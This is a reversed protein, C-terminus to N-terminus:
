AKKLTRAVFDRMRALTADAVWIETVEADLAAGSEAMREAAPQRLQRKGMAFAAPSVAALKEAAAVARSLIDERPVLANVWGRAVAEDPTVTAGTLIAEALYQPATVSRMVEFALPPFPVGVLIETVGMRGGDQAMLRHDACCALICGGAIAHGNIAAVVPKPFNFITDYLRHLAPLFERIYPVGAEVMQPLDVGASFMKGQGTLVVARSSTERLRQFRLTLADCFAVDLANAKGHHMEVVAIDGQEMVDIM